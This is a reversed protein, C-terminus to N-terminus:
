LLTHLFAQVGQSEVYNKVQKAKIKKGTVYIGQHYFKKVRDCDAYKV